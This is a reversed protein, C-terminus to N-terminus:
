RDERTHWVRLFIIKNDDIRYKIEYGNKGFPVSLKHFEPMDEIPHGLYPKELLLNAADIIRRSANLAARPNKPRLFERLRALDEVAGPEWILEPRDSM